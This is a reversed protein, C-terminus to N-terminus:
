NHGAELPLSFLPIQVNNNLNDNNTAKNIISPGSLLMNWDDDSFVLGM